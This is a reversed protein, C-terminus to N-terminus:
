SGDDPEKRVDVLSFGERSLAALVGHLEAEDA